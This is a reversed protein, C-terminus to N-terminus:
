EDEGTPAELAGMLKEARGTGIGPVQMMADKDVTWALPVGQFHDWIRGAQEVGIGDFSQLLHVAFDRNRTTGWAGRHNPRGALSTHSTKQFWSEVQRVLRATGAMSDSTLVTWKHSVQMSLCFGDYQARLFGPVSRSEGAQTWAWDGEVILVAHACATAQGLERAIRDGRISAVLDRVEKRQVAVFGAQTTLLFDAGMQEPLSSTEGLKRLLPGEAPSVLIM